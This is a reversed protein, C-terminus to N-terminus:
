QCDVDDAEGWEAGIEGWGLWGGSLCAHSGGDVAWRALLEARGSRACDAGEDGGGGKHEANDQQDCAHAVVGLAVRCRGFGDLEEDAM